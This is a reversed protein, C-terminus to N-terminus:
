RVVKTYPLATSHTYQTNYITELYRTVFIVPMGETMFGKRGTSGTIKGLFTSNIQTAIMQGAM